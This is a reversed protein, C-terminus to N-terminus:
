RMFATRRPTRMTNAKVDQVPDGVARAGSPDAAEGATETGVGSFLRIRRLM